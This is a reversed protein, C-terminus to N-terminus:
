KKENDFYYFKTNVSINLIKSQEENNNDGSKKLGLSDIHILPISKELDELFNLLSTYGGSASFSVNKSYFDKNVEGATSISFNEVLIGRKQSIDIIKALFGEYNNRAYVLNKIKEINKLYTENENNERSDIISSLLIKRAEVNKTKIDIELLNIKYTRYLPAVFFYLIVCSVILSSILFVFDKLIIVNKNVLKRYYM